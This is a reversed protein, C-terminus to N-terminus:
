NNKWILMIRRWKEVMGEVQNAYQKKEEDENHEMEWEESESGSKDMEEVSPELRLHYETELSKFFTMRWKEREEKMKDDEDDVVYCM